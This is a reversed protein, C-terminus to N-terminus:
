VAPAAIRDALYRWAIPYRYEIGMHGASFTEFHVDTVGVSTLADRFAVAGLDLFWEDRTGADVSTLWSSSGLGTSAHENM